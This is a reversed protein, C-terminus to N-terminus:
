REVGGTPESVIPRFCEKPASREGGGDFRVRVWRERGSYSDWGGVSWEEIIVGHKGNIDQVREAV